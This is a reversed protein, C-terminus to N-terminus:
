GADVHNDLIYQMLLPIPRGTAGKDKGSKWATGAIDLHAWAFKSTFHSLFSAATITGGERNGINAIDAFNSSLQQKYEDFLPLEWARDGSHTGATKLSNILKSNNGLLGSAHRGLAIICAGTLTAIDIVAAPNYREIYTLADCLVLRGEADTNLIEITKGSMSTVIDGPKIAMGDPMNEAAAVVGILNIPLKLEACAAVTGFVSAAGCMDFKMEDMAQAPKISIGGTDFTIGKGILVLPKQSKPGKLHEMIILKAPERSGQSVALLAGMGLQKMDNETLVNTKLGKYERQMAKAEKALYSPTCINAPLNGLTKARNLGNGTALGQTVALQNRQLAERSLQAFILKQLAKKPKTKLTKYKDFRYLADEIAIAATRTHWASDFGAVRIESLYSVADRSGGNVLQKAAASWITQYDSIKTRKPKGCGVLLVRQAAINPVEYIFMTHGAKSNFDGKKLTNSIYGASKKDTIEAAPSLKNNEYVGIVLCDTKVTEPQTCKVSYDM